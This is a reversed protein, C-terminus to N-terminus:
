IPMGALEDVGEGLGDVLDAGCIVMVLGIGPM